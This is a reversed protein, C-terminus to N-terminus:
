KRSITNRTLCKTFNKSRQQNCTTFIHLNLDLEHDNLDEFPGCLPSFPAFKTLSHVSSNYIILGCNKSTKKKFPRQAILLGWSVLKLPLREYKSQLCTECKNIFNLITNNLKYVHFLKCLNQFTENVGNHNINHYDELLEKLQHLNLDTSM